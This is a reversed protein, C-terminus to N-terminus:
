FILNKKAVLVAINSFSEVIWGWIFMIRNGKINSTIIQRMEEKHAVEEECCKRLVNFSWVEVGKEELYVLKNETTNRLM